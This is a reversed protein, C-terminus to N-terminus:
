AHIANLTPSAVPLPTPEPRPGPRPGPWSYASALVTAALVSGDSRKIGQVVAMMGTKLNAAVTAVGGAALFRTTADTVVPVDGNVTTVVFDPLSVSKIKGVVIAQDQNAGPQGGTQGDQDGGPGEITVKAAVWSDGNKSAQVQVRDHNVAAVLDGLSGSPADADPATGPTGEAHFTAVDQSTGSTDSDHQGSGPTPTSHEGGDSGGHYGNVKTTGMVVFTLANGKDPKVSISGNATGHPASYATLMGEVSSHDASDDHKAGATDHDGGTAASLASGINDLNGHTAALAAASGGGAVLVAAVVAAGVKTHILLALKAKLPSLM